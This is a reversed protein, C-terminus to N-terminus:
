CRASRGASARPTIPAQRLISARWPKAPASRADPFRPAGRSPRPAVLTPPPQPAMEHGGMDVSRRRSEANAPERSEGVEAPRAGEEEPYQDVAQAGVGRVEGHERGVRVVR